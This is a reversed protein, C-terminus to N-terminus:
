VFSYKDFAHFSFIEFYVPIFTSMKDKHRNLFAALKELHQKGPIKRFSIFDLLCDAIETPHLQPNSSNKVKSVKICLTTFIRYIYLEQQGSRYYSLAEALLYLFPIHFLLYPCEYTECREVLDITDLCIEMIMMQKATFGGGFIPFSPM